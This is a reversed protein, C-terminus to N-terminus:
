NNVIISYFSFATAPGNSVCLTPMNECAACIAVNFDSNAGSHLPTDDDILIDNLNSSLAPITTNGTIKMNINECVSRDIQHATLIVDQTTTPSWEVNNFRGLYWGAPPTTSIQAVGEAPLRALNLGGGGPHFVKNGTPATNFNIDDPLMFDLDSAESGTMTMMEIAQKVQFPYAIIQSAIIEAKEGELTASESSDNQRMLTFSLAAFLAVLILVYITANGAEPRTTRPKKTKNKHAFSTNQQSM